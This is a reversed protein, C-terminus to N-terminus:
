LSSGVNNKKLYETIKNDERLLEWPFDDHFEIIVTFGVIGIHFEKPADQIKIYKKPIRAAILENNWTIRASSAAYIADLQPRLSTDSVVIM